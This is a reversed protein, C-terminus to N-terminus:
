EHGQGQQQDVQKQLDDLMAYVAARPMQRLMQQVAPASLGLAARSTSRPSLLMRTVLAGGIGEAARGKPDRGSAAAVAGGVAPAAVEAMLPLRRVEAQRIAKNAGILAQTRAEAAGVGPITELASKSGDAIAKNFQANLREGAPVANGQNLARYIPKAIRQAAQKLDKLMSPSMQGHNDAYEAFMRSVHNLESESLPQKAIDGVLETVPGRAIAQADFTVGAKGADDLLGRTTASADRLAAQALNSGKRAGPIVSGVPLGERLATDAIDGAATTFEKAVSPAPRIAFDMLGHAAMKAGKMLGQGALESAGQIGAETGIGTAAQLSSVPSEAGRARNILQRAAEGAGGGLAAGGVAGPVGGVGMGFVTGGIGGVVGGAAGGLAPLTDVARDVLSRPQEPAASQSPMTKSQRADWLQAKVEDSFPLARLTEQAQADGMNYVADFAAARARDSTNLRRLYETVAQPM